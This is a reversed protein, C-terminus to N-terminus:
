LFTAAQITEESLIEDKIDKILFPVSKDDNSNMTRLEMLRNSLKKRKIAWSVAFAAIALMLITCVTLMYYNKVMGSSLPVMDDEIVIMDYGGQLRATLMKLFSINLSTNAISSFNFSM